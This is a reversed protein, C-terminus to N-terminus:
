KDCLLNQFVICLWSFIIKKCGNDEKRFFYLLLAVFLWLLELLRIDFCPLFGVFYWWSVQPIFPWRQYTCFLCRVHCRFLCQHQVWKFFLWQLWGGICCTCGKKLYTGRCCFIVGGLLSTGERTTVPRAVWAVLGRSFTDRAFM